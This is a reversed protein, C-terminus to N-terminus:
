IIKRLYFDLLNFSKEFEEKYNVNNFDNSNFLDEFRTLIMQFVDPEVHQLFLKSNNDLIKYIESSAKRPVNQKQEMIENILHHIRM